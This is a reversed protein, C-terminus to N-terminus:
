EKDTKSEDHSKPCRFNKDEHILENEEYHCSVRKGCKPCKYVVLGIYIHSVLIKMDSNCDPCHYPPIIIALVANSVLIIFGIFLIVGLIAIISILTSM